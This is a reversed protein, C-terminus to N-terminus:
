FLKLEQHTKGTLKDSKINKYLTKLQSLHEQLSLPEGTAPFMHQNRRKLIDELEQENVM